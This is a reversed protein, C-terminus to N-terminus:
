CSTWTVETAPYFFWRTSMFPRSSSFISVSFINVIVTKQNKQYLKENKTVFKGQTGVRQIGEENVCINRFLTKFVKSLTFAFFRITSIQLSHAMEELIASAEEQVDDM